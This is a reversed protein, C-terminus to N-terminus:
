SDIIIDQTDSLSKTLEHLKNAVTEIGLNKEKLTSTEIAINVSILNGTETHSRLNILSDDIKDKLEEYQTIFTEVNQEIRSILDIQKSSIKNFTEITDKVNSSDSMLIAGINNSNQIATELIKSYINLVSIKNGLKMVNENFRQSFRQLEIGGTIPLRTAIFDNGFNASYESILEMPKYVSKKLQNSSFKTLVYGIFVFLIGIYWDSSIQNFKIPITDQNSLGIGIFIGAIILITKHIEETNKISGHSKIVNRFITIILYLAVLALTAKVGITEFSSMNM